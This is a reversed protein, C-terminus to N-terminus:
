TRGPTEYPWPCDVPPPTRLGEGAAKLRMDPCPNRDPGPLSPRHRGACELLDFRDPVKWGIVSLSECTENSVILRQALDDARIPLRRGGRDALQKAPIRNAFYRRDEIRGSRAGPYGLSQIAM